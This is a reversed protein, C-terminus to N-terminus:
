QELWPSLMETLEEWQLQSAIRKFGGSKHVPRNGECLVHLCELLAVWYSAVPDDKANYLYNLGRARHLEIDRQSNLTKQVIVNDYADVITKESTRQPTCKPEAFAYSTVMSCIEDIICKTEPSSTRSYPYTLIEHMTARVQFRGENTKLLERATLIKQILENLKKIDTAHHKKMDDQGIDGPAGSKAHNALLNMEFAVHFQFNVVFLGVVIHLLKVRLWTSNSTVSLFSPVASEIETDNMPVYINIVIWVFVAINDVFVAFKHQDTNSHNNKLLDYEADYYWFSDDNLRLATLLQEALVMVCFGAVAPIKKFDPDIRCRDALSAKTTKLPEILAQADPVLLCECWFFRHLEQLFSDMAEEPTVPMPPFVYKELWFVLRWKGNSMKQMANYLEIVNVSLGEFNLDGGNNCVTSM